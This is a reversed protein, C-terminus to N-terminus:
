KITAEPFEEISERITKKITELNDENSLEVVIRIVKQNVKIHDDKVEEDIFLPLDMGWDELQNEDWENSILDWDNSGYSINDKMIFAKMKEIPTNEPLIKCPVEQIGLEVCARFRMNGGIIVYEDAFEVVVLERLQMFEPDDQISKKLKEFKDDKIYRPNAPLGNIQGNNPWLVKTALSKRVFSNNNM